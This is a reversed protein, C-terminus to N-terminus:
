VAANDAAMEAIFRRRTHGKMAARAAPLAARQRMWPQASFLARYLSPAAPQKPQQGGTPAHSAAAAAICYAWHVLAQIRRQRGCPPVPAPVSSQPPIALVTGMPSLVAASAAAGALQQGAARSPQWTSADIDQDSCHLHRGLQAMIPSTAGNCPAAQVANCQPPDASAHARMVSARSAWPCSPTTRCGASWQRSCSSLRPETELLAMHPTNEAISTTLRLGSAAGRHPAAWRALASCRRGEM